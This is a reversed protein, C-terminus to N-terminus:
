RHIDLVRAFEVADALPTIKQSSYYKPAVLNSWERRPVMAATM